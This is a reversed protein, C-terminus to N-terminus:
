LYATKLTEPLFGHEELRWRKSLKQLLAYAEDDGDHDEMISLAKEAADILGQANSSGLANTAEMDSLGLLRRELYSQLLLEGEFRAVAPTKALHQLLLHTRRTLGVERIAVADAPLMSPSFNLDSRSEALKAGAAPGAHKAKFASKRKRGFTSGSKQRGPDDGNDEESQWVVKEYSTETVERFMEGYLCRAVHLTVQSAIGMLVFAEILATVMLLWSLEGFQGSGIFQVRAVTRLISGEPDPDAGIFGWAQPQLEVEISCQPESPTWDWPFSRHDWYDEPWSKYNWYRFRLTLIFGTHRLRILTGPRVDVVNGENFDDLSYDGAYELLQRLTFAWGNNNAGASAEGLIKGDRIIKCSLLSEKIGISSASVTHILFLPLDEIGNMFFSEFCPKGNLDLAHYDAQECGPTKRQKQSWVTVQAETGVQRMIDAGTVTPCSHNYAAIGGLEVKNLPALDFSSNRGCHPSETAPASQWSTFCWSNFGTAVDEYQIVSWLLLSKIVVYAAVAFTFSMQLATLRWDKFIVLHPTEFEFASIVWRQLTKAREM